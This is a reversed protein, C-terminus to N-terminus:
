SEPEVCTIPGGQGVRGCVESYVRGEPCTAPPTTVFATIPFTFINSEVNQGGSLYGRAKITSLVTVQSRNSAMWARVRNYAEPGFGDFLIYSEEPDTQPRFVAYIPVRDEEPLSLSPDSSAYTYVLETLTIDGLGEDAFIEGGISIDQQYTNTEVAMGLLYNTGAALDIFGETTYADSVPVCRGSESRLAVAGLFRVSADGQHNVCALPAVALAAIVMLRKM